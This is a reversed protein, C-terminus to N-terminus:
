PRVGKRAKARIVANLLHEITPEAAALEAAEALAALALEADDDDEPQRSNLSGNRIAANVASNDDKPVNSGETATM